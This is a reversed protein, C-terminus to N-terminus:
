LPFARDILARGAPTVTAGGIGFQWLSLDRTLLSLPDHRLISDGLDIRPSDFFVLRGAEYRFRFTNRPLKGTAVRDHPILIYRETLWEITDAISPTPESDLHANLHAIFSLLGDQHDGDIHGVEAWEEPMDDTDPLRRRLELLVGLADLAGNNQRAGTLLAELPTSAVQQELQTALDTTAANSGPSTVGCATAEAALQSRVISLFEKHSIGSDRNHQRGLRCVAVWLVGIAARQIERAAFAGWSAATAADAASSTPPATSLAWLAERWALPDTAALPAHEVASLFHAFGRRRSVADAEIPAPADNPPQTLLELIAASEAPAEGLRCLCAAQGLEDLDARPIPDDGDLHVKAWQTEAVAKRFLDALARAPTNALRDAALVRGDDLRTGAPAVVGLYELPARYFLGYGGLWSEVSRDRQIHSPLTRRAPRLRVEGLVGRADKGCQPCTLVSFGYEYEAQPIFHNLDTLSGQPHKKAFEDVLYAFFSLYRARRSLELIGPLLQPM